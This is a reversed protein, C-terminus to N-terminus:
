LSSFITSNIGFPFYAAMLNSQLGILPSPTAFILVSTIKDSRLTKGHFLISINLSNLITLNFPSIYTKILFNRLNNYCFTKLLSKHSTENTIIQKTDNHFLDNINM